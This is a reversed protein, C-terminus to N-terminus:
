FHMNDMINFSHSEEASKPAELGYQTLVIAKVRLGVIKPSFYSLSGSCVSLPFKNKTTKVPWNLGM